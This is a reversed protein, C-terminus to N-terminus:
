ELPIPTPGSNAFATQFASNRAIAQAADRSAARAMAMTSSALRFSAADSTLPLPAGSLSDCGLHKSKTAWGNSKLGHAMMSESTDIM